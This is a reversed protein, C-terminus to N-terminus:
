HVAVTASGTVGSPSASAWGTIDGLSALISQVAKPPAQKMTLHLLVPLAVRFAVAGQAGTAASTPAVAFDRLRSPSVNGAVLENGSVGVVITQKKEHVAYFGGPLRTVSTASSFVSRPASMLKRVTTAASSPDSVAARGMTQRTDSSVILDGTLLGALTNIDAGTRARVASQRGRFRAYQAPSTAQEVSEAFALIQSPNHIGVSVPNTGALNPANTGTAFPLQDPNLTGGTTDLHFQFSLGSSSASVAAGYGRLAAVWPVRRATATSPATLANTLNGFIEILPSSPLGATAQSYDSTSFGGGHAHRDLAANVMAASSGIVATANSVALTTTGLSYLTAGDHMGSSHGGLLRKVLEGLKTSDKTEWVALISQRAGSISQSALGLMLPNGILPRIDSQYDIGLSALKTTLASEGFAALPFRRVLAQGQKIANSNPDTAVSMVFASGSPFYSLEANFPSSGSSSSGCASLLLAALLALPFLRRM